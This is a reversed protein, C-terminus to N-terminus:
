ALLVQVGAAVPVVPVALSGTRVMSPVGVTVQDQAALLPHLYFVKKGQYGPLLLDLGASLPNEQFHRLHFDQEPEQEQDLAVCDLDVPALELLVKHFAAWLMKPTGLLLLNSNVRCAQFDLLAGLEVLDELHVQAPEVRGLFIEAPHYLVEKLPAQLALAAELATLRELLLDSGVRCARVEVLAEVDM